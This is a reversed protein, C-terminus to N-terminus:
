PEGTASPVAPQGFLGLHGAGYQLLPLDTAVKPDSPLLESDSRVLDSGVWQVSPLVSSIPHPLPWLAMSAPFASSAQQKKRHM